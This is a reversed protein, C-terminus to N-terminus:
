VEFVKMESKVTQKFVQGPGQQAVAIQILINFLGFKFMKIM